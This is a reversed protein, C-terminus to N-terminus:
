RNSRKDKDRTTHGSHIGAHRLVISHDNEVAACLHVSAYKSLMPCSLKISKEISGYNYNWPQKLVVQTFDSKVPVEIPGENSLLNM